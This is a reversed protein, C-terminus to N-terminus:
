RVIGGDRESGKSLVTVWLVTLGIIIVTFGTYFGLSIQSYIINVYPAATQTITISCTASVTTDYVTTPALTLNGFRYFKWSDVVYVNSSSNVLLLEIVALTNTYQPVGPNVIQVNGYNANGVGTPNNGHLNLITDSPASYLLATLSPTGTDIWNTSPVVYSDDISLNTTTNYTTSFGTPGGYTLLITSFGPNIQNYLTTLSGNITSDSFVGNYVSGGFGVIVLGDSVTTVKDHVNVDLSTVNSTTFSSTGEYNGPVWYIRKVSSVKSQVSNFFGALASLSNANAGTDNQSVGSFYNSVYGSVLLYNPNLLSLTPVIENSLNPDSLNIDSLAVFRLVSPTSLPLSLFLLLALLSFSLSM